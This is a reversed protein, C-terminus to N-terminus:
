LSKFEAIFELLKEKYSNLKSRVQPEKSETQDKELSSYLQSLFSITAKNRAQLTNVKPVSLCDENLLEAKTWLETQPKPLKPGIDNTPPKGQPEQSSIGSIQM